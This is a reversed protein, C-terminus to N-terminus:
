IPVHHRQSADAERHRGEASFWATAIGVGSGGMVIGSLDDMAVSRDKRVVVTARPPVMAMDVFHGSPSSRREDPRTRFHIVLTSQQYGRYRPRPSQVAEVAGADGEEDPTSLAELREAMPEGATTAREHREPAELSMAARATSSGPLGRAVAEALSLM